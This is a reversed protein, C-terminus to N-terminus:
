SARTNREAPQTQLQAEPVERVAIGTAAGQALLKSFESQTEAAGLLRAFTTIEAAASEPSQLRPESRFEYSVIIFTIANGLMLCLAVFAIIQWAITQPLLWRPLVRM